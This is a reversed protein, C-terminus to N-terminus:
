RQSNGAALVTLIAIFGALVFITAVASIIQLM